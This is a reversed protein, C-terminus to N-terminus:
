GASSLRRNLYQVLVAAHALPENTDHYDGNDGTDHFYQVVGTQARDIFARLLEPDARHDLMWEYAVRYIKQRAEVVDLLKGNFLHGMPKGGGRKCGKGRFFRPETRGRIVKLGQWVGEVTDSVTGSMGPVPIGGHVWMPSLTCYPHDAYSSVDYVVAGAPVNDRSSYPLFVCRAVNRNM